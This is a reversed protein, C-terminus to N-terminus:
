TPFIVSSTGIECALIERGQAPKECVVKEFSKQLPLTTGPQELTQEITYVDFFSRAITGDAAAVLVKGLGFEPSM